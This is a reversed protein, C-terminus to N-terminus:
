LSANKKFFLSNKIKKHANYLSSVISDDLFNRGPTEIVVIKDRTFMKKFDSVSKKDNSNKTDTIIVVEYNPFRFRYNYRGAVGTIYKVPSNISRRYVLPLFLTGFDPAENKLIRLAIKEYMGLSPIHNKSISARWALSIFFKHLKQYNFDPFKLSCEKSLGHSSTKFECNPIVEFLIKYAYNDLVGLKEDCKRCLLYEKWGNQHHTMDIQQTKANICTTRGLDKLQYFCKPIIHSRILEKEQGCYKCIGIHSM